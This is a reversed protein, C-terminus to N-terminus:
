KSIDILWLSFSIVIILIGIYILRQKLTFIIFFNNINKNDENYYIVLENLIDTFTNSVNKFIDNLSLNFIKKNEIIKKNENNINFQKSYLENYQEAIKLKQYDSYNFNFKNKLINKEYHDNNSDNSNDSNNDDKKFSINYDAM